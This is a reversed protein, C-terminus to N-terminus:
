GKVLDWVTSKPLGMVKAAHGYSMHLVLVLHKAKAELKWAHQLPRRFDRLRRFDRSLVRFDHRLRASAEDFGLVLRLNDTPGRLRVASRKPTM